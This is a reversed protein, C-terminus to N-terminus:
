PITINNSHYDLTGASSIGGAGGKVSCNDVVTTSNNNYIAAQNYGDAVVFNLESGTFNIRLDGPQNYLYSAYVLSPSNAGTPKTFHGNNFNFVGKHSDIRIDFNWLSSSADITIDTNDFNVLLDGFFLWEVSGPSVGATAPRIKCRRINITGSGGEPGGLETQYSTNELELGNFEFQTLASHIFPFSTLITRNSSPDRMGAGTDRPLNAANFGGIMAGGVELEFSIAGPTGNYIGKSIWMDATAGQIKADANASQITKYADYWSSGDQKGKAAQDVFVANPRYWYSVKLTGTEGLLNTAKSTLFQDISVTTSPSSGLTLQQSEPYTNGGVSVNYNVQFPKSANFVMGSVYDVVTIVPKPINVVISITAASGEKDFNDFASCKVQTTGSKFSPSVSWNSGSLTATLNDTTAGSLACHVEKLGVGSDVATGKIDVSLANTLTYTGGAAVPNTLTLVPGRTDVKISSKTSDSWNGANDMEQVIFVNTGENLLLNTATLATTPVWAGGGIKFRFQGSFGSGTAPEDNAKWTWSGSTSNITANPASVIDPKPPATNDRLLNLVADGTNGLADTATVTVKASKGEVLNIAPITWTGDGALTANTYAAADVLYTIKSITNKGSSAGSMPVSALTTFFTGANKPASITVTPKSLDYTIPLNATPSWNGASDREQLFLTYSSGSVAASLAYVSDRILTTGTTFDGDALKYRYDGSGGGGGTTWQWKPLLSTPSTGNMKPAKPATIDITVTASGADSWNGVTDRERVFLTHAGEALDTDSAFELARTTLPSKTFDANDLKLQFDGTGGGGAWTWKPKRVNTIKNGTVAVVPKGPATLDVVVSHSGTASWNGAVDREQVYLTHTGEILPVVPIYLTDKIEKAGIFNTSDLVFRFVGSGGGGPSWTWTPTSSATGGPGKVTPKAPAVSDLYVTVFTSFVRAAADTASRTIVNPGDKLTVANLSDQNKGNVSWVVKIAPKTFYFGDVPSIILVVPGSVARIKKVVITENGETDKVYFRASVDKEVNFSISVSHVATSSDDWGPLGDVDWKFQTIVGYEQPAVVPLLVLTQGVSVTSDHGVDVVPADTKVTVETSDKKLSDAQSIAYVRTHGPSVASTKGLGDVMAVLPNGSIWQVKQVTASPFAKAKLVQDEGGTYLTFSRIDIRVSDVVQRMSVKVKLTDAKLPNEKSKAIVTASGESLGSIRGKSLGILAPDSVIFDVEPNAKPPLVSVLLSEAAGGIFVETSDKAFVVQEVPLPDSVVVVASDRVLAKFLSRVRLRTNGPKIGKVSGNDTVVAITSDQVSWFVEPKANSPVVQLELSGAAGGASLFLTDASLALSVPILARDLVIINLVVTKSPDSALKVTVQANGAKLAKLFAAGASVVDPASSSWVLTKDSLSAPLITIPPLPISDGEPLQYETISASLGTTPSLFVYTSDKKNTRGDFQTEVKYVIVGGKYGVIVVIVEGGDWHPTSLKEVDGPKKVPGRFAVDITSGNKDKLTILVSDYQALSDYIKNFSITTETKQDQTLNCALLFLVSGALAAAWTRLSPFPIGM